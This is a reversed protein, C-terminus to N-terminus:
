TPDVLVGCGKTADPQGQDEDESHQHVQHCDLTHPTFVLLIKVAVGPLWATSIDAEILEERHRMHSEPSQLEDQDCAGGQKHDHMHGIAFSSLLLVLFFYAHSVKVQVRALLPTSEPPRVEAAQQELGAYINNEEVQEVGEVGFIGERRHDLAM